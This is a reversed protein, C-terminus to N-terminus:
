KSLFEWVKSLVDEKNSIYDHYDVRFLAIGAEICENNKRSDREICEVYEVNNHWRKGDFEIAKGLSPVYIDLELRKSKLLGKVNGMTDNYRQKIIERLEIEKKSQKFACIPCWQGSRVNNPRMQFLHGDKCKWDTLLRSGIYVGLWKGNNRSAYLHMLEQFDSVGYEKLTIKSKVNDIGTQSSLFSRRALVAESKEIAEQRKALYEAYEEESLSRWWDRSQKSKLESLQVNDKYTKRTGEARKALVEPTLKQRMEAMANPNKALKAKYANEQSQEKSLQYDPNEIFLRKLRAMNLGTIRCIEERSMSPNEKRLMLAKELQEDSYKIKPM